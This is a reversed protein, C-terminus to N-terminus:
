KANREEKLVEAQNNFDRELKEYDDELEEISKQYVKIHEFLDLVLEADNTDYFIGIIQGQQDLLTCAKPGSQTHFHPALKLSWPLPSTSM